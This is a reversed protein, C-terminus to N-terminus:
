LPFYLKGDDGMTFVESGVCPNCWFVNLPDYKFKILKLIDYREAGGWFTLQPDKENYAAENLYAGSNASLPEALPIAVAQMRDYAAEIVTASGSAGAGSEDVIIMHMVATRWAPNLGVSLNANAAVQGGLVGYTAMVYGNTFLGTLMGAVATTNSLGEATLLRSGLITSTPQTYNTRPDVPTQEYGYVSLQNANTFPLGTVQIYAGMGFIKLQIPGLYQLVEANTKGPAIFFGNYGLPTAVPYGVLGYSTFNGTLSLWYALAEIYGAVHDTDM